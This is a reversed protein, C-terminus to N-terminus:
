MNATPVQDNIILNKIHELANTQNLNKTAFERSRIGIQKASDYNDISWNIKEIPDTLNRKVPVNRIKFSLIREM